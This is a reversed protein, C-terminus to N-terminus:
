LQPPSSMKIFGEYHIHRARRKVQKAFLESPIKAMFKLSNEMGDENNPKLIIKHHNSLIFVVKTQYEWADQIMRNFLDVDDKPPKYREIQSICKGTWHYFVPWNEELCNNFVDLKCELKKVANSKKENKKIKQKAVKDPSISTM